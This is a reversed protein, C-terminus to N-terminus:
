RDEENKVQNDNIPAATKKKRGFSWKRFLRPTGSGGGLKFSQAKTLKPKTTPSNTTSSTNLKQALNPQSGYLSANERQGWASRFSLFLHVLTLHIPTFSLMLICVFLASNPAPSRFVRGPSIPM